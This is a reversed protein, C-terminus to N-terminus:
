MRLQLFVRSTSANFDYSKKGYKDTDLSKYKLGASRYEYGIGIFKWSVSFGISSILGHGLNLKTNKRVEEESKTISSSTYADAKEDSVLNLLSVHYGIHYYLNFKIYHAAKSGMSTFPAVSISPGLSMGYNFEYKELNWPIYHDDDSNKANSNYVNKGNGEQEYHNVNLDVYNYDLYFQLINGIPQKHLRYSQGAKLSVGWNSSYDPVTGNEVGTMIKEDPSLTTSNYSINVYSKRSWVDRFHDEQFNSTTINQQTRVIDDITVVETSDEQWDINTLRNNDNVDQAWLKLGSLCVISLILVKKMTRQNKTLINIAKEKTKDSDM